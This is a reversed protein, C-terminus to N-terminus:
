SSYWQAVGGARTNLKQKRQYSPEELNGKSIGSSLTLTQRRGPASRQGRLHV